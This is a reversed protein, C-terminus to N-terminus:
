TAKKRGATIMIDHFSMVPLNKKDPAETYRRVTRYKTQKTKRIRRATKKKEKPVHFVQWYGYDEFMRKIYSEGFLFILFSERFKKKEANRVTIRFKNKPYVFATIYFRETEDMGVKLKYMMAVPDRWKFIISTEGPYAQLKSFRDRNVDDAIMEMLEQLTPEKSKM